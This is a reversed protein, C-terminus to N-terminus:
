IFLHSNRVLQSRVLNVLIVRIYLLGLLSIYLHLNRVLQYWVSILYASISHASIM